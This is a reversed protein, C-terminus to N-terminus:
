CRNKRQFSVIKFGGNITGNISQEPNSFSTAQREPSFSPVNLLYLNKYSDVFMFEVAMEQIATDSEYYDTQTYFCGGISVVKGRLDASFSLAGDVGVGFSLTAGPTAFTGQTLEIAQGFENIYTGIAEADAVVGNGYVGTASAPITPTAVDPVTFWGTTYPVLGTAKPTMRVKLAAAKIDVTAASFTLQLQTQTQNETKYELIRNGNCDSGYLEQFQDQPNISCETASPTPILFRALPDTLDYLHTRVGGKLAYRSAIDLAM